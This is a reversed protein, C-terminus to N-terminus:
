KQEMDLVFVKALREIEDAPGIFRCGARQMLTGDQQAITTCHRVEIDVFASGGPYIIRCATLVTGAVLRVQDDYTIMGLGGCSIDTVKCAFQRVGSGGAICDLPVDPISSIRRHARRQSLVLLEPFDCRVALTGDVPVETFRGTSFELSGLPHSSSFTVKEATMMSTNAGRNSSYDIALFDHDPSIRRLQSVFLAKGGVYFACLPKGGVLLENLLRAIELRSRVLTQTTGAIRQWQRNNDTM